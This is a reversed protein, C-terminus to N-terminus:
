SQWKNAINLQESEDSERRGWPSCCAVRGQGDGIGSAHEFEDM